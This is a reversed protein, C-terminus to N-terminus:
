KKDKTISYMDLYTQNIDIDDAHDFRKGPGWKNAEGMAVMADWLKKSMTTKYAAFVGAYFAGNTWDYPEHKPNALQWKAVKLMRAEITKRKFIDPSQAFASVTVLVSIVVIKMPALFRKVGRIRETHETQERHETTRAAVVSCVSFASYVSAISSFFKSM